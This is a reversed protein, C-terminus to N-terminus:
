ALSRLSEDLRQGVSKTSTDPVVEARVQIAPKHDKDGYNILNIQVNTATEPDKSIRKKLMNYERIAAIKAKFDVKQQLTFLLEKDAVVDNFGTISMMKDMRTLIQKKNLLRRVRDRVYVYQERSTILYNFAKCYSKIGDGFHESDSIYLQCFREEQIPLGSKALVLTNRNKPDKGNQLRRKTSQKRRVARREPTRKRVRTTKLEM